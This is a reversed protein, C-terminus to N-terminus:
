GHLENRITVRTALEPASHTSNVSRRRVARSGNMGSAIRCPRTVLVMVMAANKEIPVMMPTVM